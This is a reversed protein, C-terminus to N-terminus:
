YNIVQQLLRNAEAQVAEKPWRETNDWAHNTDFGIIWKNSDEATLGEYQDWGCTSVLDYWSLGWHISPNFSSDKFLPHWIPIVVYGNGWGFQDKLFPIREFILPDESLMRKKVLSEM